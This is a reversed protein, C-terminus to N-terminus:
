AEMLHLIHIKEEISPDRVSPSQLGDRLSEDNLLVADPTRLASRQVENWDYILESAKM